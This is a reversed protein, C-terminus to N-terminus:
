CLGCSKKCNVTMYAEYKSCYGKGAWAVCSNNSYKNKCEGGCYNCSKKCNLILYNGSCYKKGAWKACFSPKKDECLYSTTTTPKATTSTTPTTLDCTLNCSKRCNKAMFNKQSGTCYGIKAWKSCHSFKDICPGATSITDDVLVYGEVDIIHHTLVKAFM